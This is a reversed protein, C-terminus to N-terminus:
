AYPKRRAPFGRDKNCDGNARTECIIQTQGLSAENTALNRVQRWCALGQAFLDLTFRRDVM